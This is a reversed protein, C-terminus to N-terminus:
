QILGRHQRGAAALFPVAFFNNFVKLCILSFYNGCSSKFLADVRIFREVPLWIHDNQAISYEPTPVYMGDM